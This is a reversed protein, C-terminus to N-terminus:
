IAFVKRPVAQTAIAGLVAGPLTALCFWFASRYDIRGMRSYAVSGSAANLFVVALSVATFADPNEAPYALLLIPVLIFGGGAGILTGVCGVGIGLAILLLYEQPQLPRLSDSGIRNESFGLARAVSFRTRSQAASM